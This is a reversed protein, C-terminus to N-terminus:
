IFNEITPYSDLQRIYNPWDAKVADFFQIFGQERAERRKEELSEEAWSAVTSTVEMEVLRAFTESMAFWQNRGLDLERCTNSVAENINNHVLEHILSHISTKANRVGMSWYSEGFTTDGYALADVIHTTFAERKWPIKTIETIKAFVADGCHSWMEDIEKRIRELEPQRKKWYPEYLKYTTQLISELKPKLEKGYRTFWTVFRPSLSSVDRSEGLSEIFCRQMFTYQDHLSSFRKCVDKPVLSAFDRRYKENKLAPHTGCSLHLHYYLNLPLSVVFSVRPM